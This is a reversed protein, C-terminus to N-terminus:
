PTRVSAPKADLEASVLLDWCRESGVVCLDGHLKSRRWELPTGKTLTAADEILFTQQDTNVQTDLSGLRGVYNVSQVVGMAVPKADQNNLWRDVRPDFRYMLGLVVLFALLWPLVSGQEPRNDQKRAAKRAVKIAAIAKLSATSHINLTPAGRTM